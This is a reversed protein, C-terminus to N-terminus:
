AKSILIFGCKHSNKLVIKGGMNGLNKRCKTTQVIKLRKNWEKYHQKKAKEWWKIDMKKGMEMTEM